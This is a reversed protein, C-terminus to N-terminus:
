TTSTPLAFDGPSSVLFLRLYLTLTLVIRSNINSPPITTAHNPTIFVDLVSAIQIHTLLWLLVSLEKIRM